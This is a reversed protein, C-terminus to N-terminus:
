DKSKFQSWRKNGEKDYIVLHSGFIRGLTFVTIAETDTSNYLNITPQGITTLEIAPKKKKPQHSVSMINSMEGLNYGSINRLILAHEQSKSSIYSSRARESTTLLGVRKGEKDVVELRSCEIDDFREKQENFLRPVISWIGVIILIIVAGLIMSIMKQKYTM